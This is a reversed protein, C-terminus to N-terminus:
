QRVSLCTFHIDMDSSILPCQEWQSWNGMEGRKDDRKSLNPMAFWHGNANECRNRNSSMFHLDVFYM